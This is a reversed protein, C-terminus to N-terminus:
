KKRKKRTKKAFSMLEKNIAEAKEDAYESPNYYDEPNEFESVYGNRRAKANLEPITGDCGFYDEYNFFVEDNALQWYGEWRFDRLKLPNNTDCVKAIQLEKGTLRPKDGVYVIRNARQRGNEDYVAERRIISEQELERFLKQMSRVSVNFANAITELKMERGSRRRLYNKLVEKRKKGTLKRMQLAGDEDFFYFYGYGKKAM